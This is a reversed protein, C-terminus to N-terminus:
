ASPLAVVRTRTLRDHLARRDSGVLAPLFGLGFTAASAVGALTRKVALAGDVHEDDATVVRIRMAMKGITQGGVATFACFYSLTVLLLFAIVPAAPLMSLDAMTLGTMRLTFYVVAVDVAALLVHDIAAAVLRAVPGSLETHAPGVAAASAALRTATRARVDASTLDSQSGVPWRQSPLGGERVAGVVPAPPEEVFDLAPSADIPRSPKPMPRPVARLRPTEPTRRVALPARPAAPLRILPEDSDDFLSAAGFSSMRRDVRAHPGAEAPEIAVARDRLPEPDPEAIERTAPSEALAATEALADGDMHEFKDDWQATAPLTDDSARFALDIELDPDISIEPESILSFDYGCNKCRDGTEFGLYHCKPCKV